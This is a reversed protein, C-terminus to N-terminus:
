IRNKKIVLARNKQGHDPQVEFFFASEKVKEECHSYVKEDFFMIRASGGLALYKWILHLLKIINKAQFGNTLTLSVYDPSRYSFYYYWLEENLPEM